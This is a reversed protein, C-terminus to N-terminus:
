YLREFAKVFYVIMSVVAGGFGKKNKNKQPVERASVLAVLLFFLGVFFALATVLM